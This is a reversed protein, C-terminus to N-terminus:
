ERVVGVIEMVKGTEDDMRRAVFVIKLGAGRWIPPDTPEPLPAGDALMNRLVVLREAGKYVAIASDGLNEFRYSVSDNQNVISKGAPMMDLFSPQLPFTDVLREAPQQFALLLALM